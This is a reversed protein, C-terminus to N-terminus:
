ELAELAPRIVDTIVDKFIPGAHRLIIQGDKDLLFTEPVGYLGWAMGTRGDYDMWVAQYPNGYTQLFEATAAQKDNYAVGVM